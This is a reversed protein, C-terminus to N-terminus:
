NPAQFSAYVIRRAGELQINAYPFSGYANSVLPLADGNAKYAIHVLTEQPRTRYTNPSLVPIVNVPTRPKGSQDVCGVSVINDRLRVPSQKIYTSTHPMCIVGEIFDSYETDHTQQTARSTLIGGAFAATLALPLGIKKLANHNPM